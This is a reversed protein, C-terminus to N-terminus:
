AIKPHECHQQFDLVSLLNSNSDKEMILGTSLFPITQFVSSNSKLHIHRILPLLISLNHLSSTTHSALHFFLPSFPCYLKPNRGWWGSISEPRPEASGSPCVGEVRSVRKREGRKRRRM